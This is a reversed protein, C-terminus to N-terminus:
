IVVDIEEFDFGRKSIVRAFDRSEDNNQRGGFDPRHLCYSPTGPIPSALDESNMSLHRDHPSDFCPPTHSRDLDLDSGDEDSMVDHGSDGNVEQRKKRLKKNKMRRNQFWTKVQFM